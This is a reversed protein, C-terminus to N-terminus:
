QNLGISGAWRACDVDIFIGGGVQLQVTLNDYNSMARYIEHGAPPCGNSAARLRAEPGRDQIDRFTRGNVTLVVDVYNIKDSLRNDVRSGVRDVKWAGFTGAQVVGKGYYASALRVIEVLRAQQAEKEVRDRERNDLVGFVILTLLGLVFVIGIVHIVSLGRAVRKQDISGM